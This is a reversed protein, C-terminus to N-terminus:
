NLSEDKCPNFLLNFEKKIIRKFTKLTLDTRIYCHALDIYCSNTEETSFDISISHDENFLHTSVWTNLTNKFMKIALSVLQKENLEKQEPNSVTVLM